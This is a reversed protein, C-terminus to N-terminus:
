CPKCRISNAVDVHNAGKRIELAREYYDKTKELDGEHQYVEGLTCHCDAVYQHNPGFQGRVIELAQEFYTKAKKLEGTDCCARDLINYSWAVYLIKIYLELLEKM